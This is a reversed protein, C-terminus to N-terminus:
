TGVRAYGFMGEGSQELAQCDDEDVVSFAAMAFLARESSTRNKHGERDILDVRPQIGYGNAIQIALGPRANLELIMPGKTKDLVIDVGLYGLGTIEYCRASLDTFTHWDPVSFTSLDKGTDPHHTVPRGFQVAKLATGTGVDIGVGVAGQHLNAKGDSAETSLRTMAMVPYGKYVIVRIDPVGKYSLGEFADSFEVMEEIMAVDNNGGLSFLGSLINSAHRKVEQLTVRGGGSKLFDKGDRGGIVLIGKGGSGRAPKIVFPPCTELFAELERVNGQTKVVGLLQPASIGAKELIVKTKLKDDVLPYLKRPNNQAIMVVNRKNMGVIGAKKLKSPSAFFM